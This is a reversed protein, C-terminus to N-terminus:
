PAKLLYKGGSLDKVLEYGENLKQLLEEESNVIIYKSNNREAHGSRAERMLNILEEKFRELEEVSMEEMQFRLTEEEKGEVVYIHSTGMAKALATFIKEEPVGQAKLLTILTNLEIKKAEKEPITMKAEYISVRHMAEKYKEALEEVSFRRYARDLYEAHGMLAHVIDQDLGIESRFFKRLSHIHLKYRGTAEDKEDLGAKKLAKIWILRVTSDDLDWVRESGFDESGGYKQLTKKPTRKKLQKKVRLWDKIADRAEYSMFVVRGGVGAKTYEPRIRARPPDADLDLDSVKLQLAEGVRCGSSALFLFLSKAKIDVFNLIKRLQEKTPKDDLTVARSTKPMLRKRIKKWEEESIKFGQEEFFQKVGSVYAKVTKPPRNALSQLFVKFDNIFDREGAKLKELYWEVCKDIDTVKKKGLVVTLFNKIAYFYTQRTKKKRFNAELWRRLM